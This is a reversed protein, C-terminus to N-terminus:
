GDFGSRIITDVEGPPPVPDRRPPQDQPPSPARGGAKHCPMKRCKIVAIDAAANINVSGHPAWVYGDFGSRIITGVEGPPRRSKTVRSSPCFSDSSVACVTITSFRAPAEVLM